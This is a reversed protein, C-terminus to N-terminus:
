ARRFGGMRGAARGYGREHDARSKHHFPLQAGDRPPLISRPGWQGAHWWLKGAYWAMAGGGSPSEYAVVEGKSDRKVNASFRHRGAGTRVDLACLTSGDLQGRLGAAAYAVGDHVLVSAWIPWPSGLGDMLSLRREERAVRYRWCLKGTAADLCYVWGDSSGAFLRGAAWTPAAKVAGATWYRWIEKGSASDICVVADEITGFYVRTGVAIPQSPDPDGKLHLPLVPDCRSVPQPPTYIWRIGARTPVVAPSSGKRTEDSASPRGTALM